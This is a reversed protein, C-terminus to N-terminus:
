VVSGGLPFDSAHLKLKKKCRYIRNDISAKTKGLRRAIDATNEGLFFRRIFIQQDIPDLRNILQMLELRNEMQVLVKEVSDTPALELNDSSIELNKTAKRYYDIAKFKAIACIWKKFKDSDDGNFDKRHHWVSLFVDNVCEDLMGDNKFPALIKYSIGKIAPLYTNVIYELADEKGLRLRQIFNTDNSKM